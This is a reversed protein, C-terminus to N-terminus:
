LGKRRAINVETCAGMVELFKQYEGKGVVFPNPEGPKRAKLMDLKPQIPDMLPHNQLEVEVKAKKTEEEFHPVSKAYQALGEDSVFGPTLVTGAYMAAIRTKGNDKVPFIFGMSGPTHGPVAVPVLKFDGLVIAQGEVLLQDHKPLPAAPGGRGGRAPPHEMLNWDAESIYVKSGFHEQFWATGGFHDAHGHGVVIIKVMSPDLGLKQFGPLLKTQTDGPSLSDIMLLGGSTQIVYAVTGQDGIVYVNDFIRAPEIAPDSPSNAHPAECFFHAEEAWRAGGTKKAKEILAKVADSDPKAPAAPPVQSYLLGAWIMAFVIANKM